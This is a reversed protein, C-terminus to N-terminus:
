CEKYKGIENSGDSNYKCLDTRNTHTYINSYETNIFQNILSSKGSRRPGILIFNMPVAKAYVSKIEETKQKYDVEEKTLRHGM